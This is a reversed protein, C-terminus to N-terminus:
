FAAHDPAVVAAKIASVAGFAVLRKNGGIGFVGSEWDVFRVDPPAILPIAQFVALGEVEAAWKEGM